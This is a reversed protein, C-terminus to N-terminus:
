FLVVDTIFIVITHSSVLFLVCGRFIKPSFNEAMGPPEFQGGLSAGYGKALRCLPEDLDRIQAGGRAAM